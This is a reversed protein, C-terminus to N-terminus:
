KFYLDEYIILSLYIFLYFYTYICLLADDDELAGSYHVTGVHSV